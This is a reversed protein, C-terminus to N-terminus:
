LMNLELYLVQPTPIVGHFPPTLSLTVVKKAAVAEQQVLDKVELWFAPINQDPILDEEILGLQELVVGELLGIEPEPDEVGVGAGVGAGAGAGVGAGAGAGAGVPDLPFMIVM